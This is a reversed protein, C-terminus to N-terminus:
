LISVINKTSFYKLEDQSIVSYCMKSDQQPLNWGKMRAALM